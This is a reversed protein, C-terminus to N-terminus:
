PLSAAFTKIIKKATSKGVNTRLEIPAANWLKSAQYAFSSKKEHGGMPVELNGM